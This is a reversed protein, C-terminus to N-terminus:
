CVDLLNQQQTRTIIEVLNPEDQWDAALEPVLRDSTQVVTLYTDIDALPYACLCVPGYVWCIQKMKNLIHSLINKRGLTAALEMPMLQYKNKLPEKDEKIHQPIADMLADYADTQEHMVAIHVATNGEEDKALLVAMFAEAGSAKACDLIFKILELNGM